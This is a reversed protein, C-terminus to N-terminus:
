PTDFDRGQVDLMRSGRYDRGWDLVPFFRQATPILGNHISWILPGFSEAHSARAATESPIISFTGDLNKSQAYSLEIGPSAQKILQLRANALQIDLMENEKVKRALDLTAYEREIPTMTATLARSVGASVMGGIVARGFSGDNPQHPIGTSGGTFAASVPNFSASQSGLAALPSIGNRAADAIRWSIGNQAFERELEINRNALELSQQNASLTDQRAQENQAANIANSEDNNGLISNGFDSLENGFDQFWSM